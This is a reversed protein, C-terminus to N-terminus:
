LAANGKRSASNERAETRLPASRRAAAARARMVAPMVGPASPPRASTSARVRAMRSRPTRWSPWSVPSTHPLSPSRSSTRTVVASCTAWSPSATARALAAAASRPRARDGAARAAATSRLPKSKPSSWPFACCAAMSRRPVPPATPTATPTAPDPLVARSRGRTSAQFACPSLTIPTAMAQRWASGSFSAPTPSTAASVPKRCPTRAPRRETPGRVTTTTSSSPCTPARCINSSNRSRASCPKRMTATPSSLCHWPMSAPGTTLRMRRASPGSATGSIRVVRRCRVSRSRSIAPSNRSPLAASASAM